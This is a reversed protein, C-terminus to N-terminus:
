VYHLNDETDKVNYVVVPQPLFFIDFTFFTRKTSPESQRFGLMKIIIIDM